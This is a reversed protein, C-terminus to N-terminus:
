KQAMYARWGGFETIDKASEYGSEECIFGKVWSGDALEVNGIGLPHPVMAVFTGFTDSPVNWVEVAVSKGQDESVRRLGPKPPTTNPLAYLRYRPATSTAAALTAHVKQLQWNLAMGSLHGGVVCLPITVPSTAPIAPDLKDGSGATVSTLNGVFRSSDLFKSALDLLAYDNFKQSIFTIGNPLGDERFGGPVALASMDALNVFNTYTGQHTNCLIPEKELDDFSPNLPCTPVVLGDFSGFEKRIKKLIRQRTYEFKFVDASTYNEAKKVVEYVVPDMKDKGSAMLDRIADYREAVWPGYYLLSALENLVAFDKRVLKVGTAEVRKLAAEYLKPNLEDGFFQPEQPIAFTPKDGFTTLLREPLERSYEDDDDYQAAVSFVLQADKLNLAFISPCDLSKCAPVVGKCSLAGKTPKLGVINNLAAPVRGSGATDTGLAFPVIGRGVVNGSGASSGGSVHKDSFVCPTKGYPSRTGVLGTAFQDLNTKGVVIAGAKKLYHVVTADEEPTFEFAPCAATTNFGKADINDKVACPVGYLPLSKPDEAKALEAWQSALLEPTAISIWAPDDKSFSAVLTQLHDLVKTPENDLAYQKWQDITWGATSTM